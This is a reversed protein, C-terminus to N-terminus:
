VEEAGEGEGEGGGEGEEGGAEGGGWEGAALELGLVVDVGDGGAEVAVEVVEVDQEFGADEM